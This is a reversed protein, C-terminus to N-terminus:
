GENKYNILIEVPSEERIKRYEEENEIIPGWNELSCSSGDLYMKEPTSCGCDFCAGEKVCRKCEEDFIRLMYQELIYPPFISSLLDAYLVQLWRFPNVWDKWKTNKITKRMGWLKKFAYAVVPILFLYSIGFVLWGYGLVALGCIGFLIWKGRRM